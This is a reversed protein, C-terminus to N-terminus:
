KITLIDELKGFMIRDTSGQYGQTVTLWISNGYEHLTPYQFSHESAFRYKREWIEGDSSVDINFVSRSVNNIRSNEQWGLYYLGNFRDFTPKSNTGNPVFPMEIGARWEKGDKSRTFHYNGLDNRCIAMWTGDPLRNVSSESLEQSQPENYHGIIEFTHYDDLLRALANQKGPFNNLTVYVQDDFIKFSDFIYFGYRLVPKNFGRAVADQHFFVPQMDHIGSSTKLKAKFIDDCFRMTDLHFDRYWIQAEYQNDEQNTFFCRLTKADVQIIRPVFCAGLPLKENHFVQESRALNYVQEVKMTALNVASLVCYQHHGANHGPQVDNDHEVIFAYGNTCVFEADHAGKVPAATVRILGHLVRNGEAEPDWLPSLIPEKEMRKLKYTM